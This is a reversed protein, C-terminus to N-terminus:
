LKIISSLKVEKDTPVYQVSLEVGYKAIAKYAEVDEKTAMARSSLKIGDEYQSTGGINLKPISDGNELLALMIAPKKSVVFVKQGDYKKAKFNTLATELSIISVSMGAPKALKMGEKLIPDNAVKDDIVMLRTAGSVHSWQSAVIGHLLRHDIRALVISM